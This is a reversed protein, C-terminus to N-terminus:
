KRQNKKKCFVKNFYLLPEAANQLLSANQLLKRMKYYPNRCKTILQANQLLPQLMKYYISAVCTTVLTATNQLLRRDVCNTVVGQRM